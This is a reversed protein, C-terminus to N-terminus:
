KQALSGSSVESLVKKIKKEQRIANMNVGVIAKVLEASPTACLSYIM